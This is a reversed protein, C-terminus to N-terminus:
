KAFFSGESETNHSHAIRIPVNARKAHKLIFGSMKDMHAHVIKYDINQKFFQSLSRSFGRHGAATIYPIRHIRGGMSIIETDFVGQKFTLFDFQIKSRDINRYLNMILTEAGGRNM